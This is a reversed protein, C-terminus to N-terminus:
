PLEEIVLTEAASLTRTEATQLGLEELSRQLPEIPQEPRLLLFVAPGSGCLHPEGFGSQSIREIGTARETDVEPLVAEFVNYVDENRVPEGRLLRAALGETRAGDTYHDRRLAAYMRTTKDPPGQRRAHGIVVSVKSTTPLPKLIEGRGSAIATGGRLLFPVDSGVEAAFATLEDDSFDLEWLARLGRLVAAADSSGGGLGAAVPIHKELEIRAGRGPDACKQQLLVAARYALNIKPDEDFLAGADGTLEISIEDALRLTIEDALDITQLITRVEHYGDPRKGLVELTWNIKAPARLRVTSM